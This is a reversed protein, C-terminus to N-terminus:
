TRNFQSCSSLQTKQGSSTRSQAPIRSDFTAHAFGSQRLMLRIMHHGHFVPRTARVTVASPGFRFIKDRGSAKEWVDSREWFERPPIPSIPLMPLQYRDVDAESSREVPPEMLPSWCREISCKRKTFALTGSPISPPHKGSGTPLHAAEPRRKNSSTALRGRVAIDRTRERPCDRRIRTTRKWPLTNFPGSPTVTRNLSEGPSMAQDDRHVSLSVGRDGPATSMPVAAAVRCAM